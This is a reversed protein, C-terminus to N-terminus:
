RHAIAYLHSRTKVYLVGNAAVVTGLLANHMDIKAILRRHARAAFVLVDGDETCLYIKDDVWSPSGWVAAQTDHRWLREGTAADLCDLYGSLGAIFCLGDHVACYSLSRGFRIDGKEDLGGYHWVLGSNRNVPAKPDFNDNVPSLDVNTASAKAPDICWLHGVGEGHEPDQGVTVFVKEQHVVAPAIFDSRTGRGGLIWKASKPNCDFKWLLKGSQPEFAYLWGDGGPFIVQPQGKIEAYTPSSWQAHLINRGPSADQWVVKGTHKNVALFSPAHPAPLKAHSEDHGNGTIVFVLDGAVLPSSAALNHPFVGLEKIMDLRWIIDADIPDKYQEDQVGQNGNAFGEVDACVLECRNSVYYLRDGDVCPTSAIGQEPWDNVLGAPLKDHVTQWLFKGDSERFCMLIGRDLPEPEGGPRRPNRTDRPNRPRNNNTGIFIKGGAIVPGGHAQSGLEAVWKINTGFTIDWEAPLNRDVLNVLNRQPSGGLMPWERRPLRDRDPAPAAHPLARERGLWAALTVTSLALACAACVRIRPHRRMISEEGKM